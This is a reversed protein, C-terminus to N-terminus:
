KHRRLGDNTVDNTTMIDAWTRSKFMRHQSYPIRHDRITLRRSGGSSVVGPQGLGLARDTRTALAVERDNDNDTDTDTHPTVTYEGNEAIDQEDRGREAIAQLVLEHLQGDPDLRNM